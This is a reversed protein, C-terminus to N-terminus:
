GQKWCCAATKKLFAENYGSYVVQVVCCVFDSDVKSSLSINLLYFSLMKYCFAAALKKWAKGSRNIMCLVILPLFIVSSDTSKDQRTMHMLTKIHGLNLRLEM